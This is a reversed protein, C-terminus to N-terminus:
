RWIGTMFGAVAELLVYVTNLGVAWQFAPSLNNAAAHSHDLAM